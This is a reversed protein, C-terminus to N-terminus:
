SAHLLQSFYLPTTGTKTGASLSTPPGLSTLLSLHVSLVLQLLPNGTGAPGYLWYITERTIDNAWTTIHNLIGVRTGDQCLQIDQNAERDNIANEVMPIDITACDSWM